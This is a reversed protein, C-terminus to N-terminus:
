RVILPLYLGFAAGTREDFGIDFGAGFPRADGDIDVSVLVDTGADMAPSGLGLHYNDAAPALPQAPASTSATRQALSEAFATPLLALMLVGLLGLALCVTRM